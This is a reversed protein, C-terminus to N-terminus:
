YFRLLRQVLFIKLVMGPEVQMVHTANTSSWNINISSGNVVDYSSASLSITPLPLGSSSSGGGGGGGGGCSTIVFFSVAVATLKLNHM